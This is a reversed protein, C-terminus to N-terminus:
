RELVGPQAIIDQIKKFGVLQYSVSPCCSARSLEM